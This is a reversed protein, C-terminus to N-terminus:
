KKRTYTLTFLKNEKDGDIQYMTMVANDRGKHVTVTKHKAMKGQETPGEGTCVMTDDDIFAGEMVMMSPSMSDIWTGVYKKKIPCYGFTGRGEFKMGGMDGAFKETFWFGGLDATCVSTAKSEQGGMDCTCDWTGVMQKLKEHEPGPKPMPPQQASAAAVLVLAVVLASLRICPCM